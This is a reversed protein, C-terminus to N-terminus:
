GARDPREVPARREPAPLRPVTRHGLLDIRALGRGREPPGRPARPERGHRRPAPDVPRVRRAAPQRPDRRPLPRPGRLRPAGGYRPVGPAAAAPAPRIRGAPPVRGGRAAAA